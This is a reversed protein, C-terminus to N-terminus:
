LQVKLAAAGTAAPTTGDRRCISCSPKPLQGSSAVVTTLSTPPYPPAPAPISQPLTSRAPHVFQATTGALLSIATTIIFTLRRTQAPAPRALPLTLFTPPGSGSDLAQVTLYRAIPSHAVPAGPLPAHRLCVRPIHLSATSNLMRRPSQQALRPGHGGSFCSTRSLDGAAPGPAQGADM